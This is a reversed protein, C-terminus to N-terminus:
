DLALIRRNLGCCAMRSSQRLVTTPERPSVSPIPLQTHKVLGLALDQACEPKLMATKCPLM